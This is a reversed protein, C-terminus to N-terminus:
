PPTSGSANQDPTDLIAGFDERCAYSRLWSLHFRRLKELPMGPPNEIHGLRYFHEPRYDLRPHLLECGMEYGEEEDVPSLDVTRGLCTGDDTRDPCASHPSPYFFRSLRSDLLTPVACAGGQALAEEVTYRMVLVSVIGDEGPTYHGLGLCDRLREAWDGQGDELVDEVQLYTTAFLPRQDRLPNWADAVKQLGSEAQARLAKDDGRLAETWTMLDELTIGACGCAWAADEVRVLYQRQDILPLHNSRNLERFTPPVTAEEPDIELVRDAYRNHRDHWQDLADISEGALYQGYLRQTEEAAREELLFNETLVRPESGPVHGDLSSELFAQLAPFRTADM